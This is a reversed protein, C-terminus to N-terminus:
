AFIVPLVFECLHQTNKKLLGSNIRGRETCFCSLEEEEEEVPYCFSLFAVVFCSVREPDQAECWLIYLLGHVAGFAGYGCRLLIEWAVSVEDRVRGFYHFSIQLPIMLTLHSWKVLEAVWGFDPGSGALDVQELSNNKSLKAYMQARIDRGSEVREMAPEEEFSSEWVHFRGLGPRTPTSRMVNNMHSGPRLSSCRTPEFGSALHARPSLKTRGFSLGRMSAVLESVPNLGNPSTPPSSSTPSIPPSTLISTPSPLFPTPKTLQHSDLVLRGPSSYDSEVKGAISQQHLTRLQDPSHAFFCVRRPCNSGDKCPQTRYRDPHLWCEFVGHAFECSDGKKCVGACWIGLNSSWGYVILRKISSAAHDGFQWWGM